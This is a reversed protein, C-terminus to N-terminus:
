TLYMLTSALVLIVVTAGFFMRKLQRNETELEQIRNM